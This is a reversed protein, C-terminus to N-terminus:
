ATAGRFPEGDFLEQWRREGVGIGPRIILEVHVGAFWTFPKILQSPKYLERLMLMATEVRECVQVSVKEPFLVIESNRRTFNM